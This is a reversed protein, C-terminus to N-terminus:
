LTTPHDPHLAAAHRYYGIAEAPRGHRVLDGGM